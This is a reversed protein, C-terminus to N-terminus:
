DLAAPVRQWPDFCSDRTPDLQDTGQQIDTAHLGPLHGEISNRAIEAINSPPGCLRHGEQGLLLLQGNLNATIRGADGHVASDHM